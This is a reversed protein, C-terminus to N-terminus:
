LLDVRVIWQYSQYWLKLIKTMQYSCAVWQFLRQHQFLNLASPSSPTLPHSPQICWQHLSRSHPCVGPSPSPCPPRAHQLGNTAFHWLVVPHSFLLLMHVIYKLASHAVYFRLINYFCPKLGLSWTWESQAWGSNLFGLFHTELKRMVIFHIKDKM